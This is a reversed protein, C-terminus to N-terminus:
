KKKGKKSDGSLFIAAATALAAGVGAAIAASKEPNKKIYGEAKKLTAEAQRKVKNFEKQAKLITKDIDKSATKAMANVKEELKKEGLELATKTVKNVMKKSTTM